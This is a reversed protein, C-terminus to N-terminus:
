DSEQIILKDIIIAFAIQLDIVGEVNTFVPCRSGASFVAKEGDLARIWCSKM